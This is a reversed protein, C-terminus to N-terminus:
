MIKMIKQGFLFYQRRVRMWRVVNGRVKVEINKGQPLLFNINFRNNRRLTNALEKAAALRRNEFSNIHRVLGGSTRETKSAISCQTFSVIM